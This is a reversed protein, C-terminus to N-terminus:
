EVYAEKFYYQGLPSVAVNKIKPNACIIKTYFYLPIVPMDRMLIDEAQHLLATRKEPNQEVQADKVFKDYDPNSYAADNNGGNSIWLDLFTMPDNYDAIWGHRAIQYNKSSRTTQFVAWEENKLEVELGLNKAWMDQIAQALLAHSESTNYTFILKPLKTGDGYGAEALNKKAETVDATPAIYSKDAFEKGSTDVVGKPVFGTAPLQGGKTVQEVLLKRDLAKSLAHRVKTNSLFKEAEPSTAKLNGSLNIVYFYTGLFPYTKAVGEKLLTPIEASPPADIMDIEGSKFAGLYTKQDVIMKLKVEDLKVTSTNWYNPNKELVIEEKPSWEKIKFAGNGIYTKADTAWATNKAVIDERLPFYAPVATLSLFYPTAAELKVELTYDDIVKIGVEEVKARGNFYNEANKIYFLQYSYEMATEPNLGRKWSYEFDKATVPKGDSWKADKKLTFTYTLGDESIKVNEAAAPVTKSDVGVFYLGEFVNGAVISGDIATNLQPDITKPESGLNYSLKQEIKKVQVEQKASDKSEEKKDGGCGVLLLGVAAVSILYYFIKKM